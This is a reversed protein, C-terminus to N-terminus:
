LFNENNFICCVHLFLFLKIVNKKTNKSCIHFRPFDLKKIFNFKYFIKFRNIFYKCPLIYINKIRKLENLHVNNEIVIKNKTLPLALNNEVGNELSINKSITNNNCSTKLKRKNVNKVLFIKKELFNKEIFAEIKNSISNKKEIKM